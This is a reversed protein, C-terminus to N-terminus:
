GSFPDFLYNLLSKFQAKEAASKVQNKRRSYVKLPITDNSGERYFAEDELRFDSFQTTLLDYNEWTAEETRRHCWLILLELVPQGVEIVWRHALVSSPQLDVPHIRANPPLELKYAVPGVKRIIRYPGYFRPSLKEYRRKALTKQRYPQIKVFVYDGEQFSLERRKTNAHNRMRDHAKVLNGSLLKLMNDREILQHELDANKTEGVVYPPLPPPDGKGEKVMVVGPYIGQVRARGM